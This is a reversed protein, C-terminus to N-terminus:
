AVSDAVEKDTENDLTAQVIRLHSRNEGECLEKYHKIAEDKPFIHTNQGRNGGGIKPVFQNKRVNFVGWGYSENEEDLPLTKSEEGSSSTGSESM